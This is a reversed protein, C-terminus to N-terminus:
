DLPRRVMEAFRQNCYNIHGDEVLTIAGEQMQEVITQYTQDAGQLTFVRQGEPTAVVLADVGGERIAQLTEQAEALRSSQEALQARLSQVEQTLEERTREPSSM